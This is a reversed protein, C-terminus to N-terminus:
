KKDATKKRWLELRIPDPRGGRVILQGEWVNGDEDKIALPYKADENVTMADKPIKLIALAEELSVKSVDGEPSTGKNPFVITVWEPVKDLAPQRVTCWLIGASKHYERTEDIGIPHQAIQEPTYRKGFDKLNFKEEFIEPKGLLADYFAFPKGLCEVINKPKPVGKSQQALIPHCIILSMIMLIASHKKMTNTPIPNLASHM